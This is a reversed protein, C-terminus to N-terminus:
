FTGNPRVKSGLINMTHFENGGSAKGSIGLISVKLDLICRVWTKMKLYLNIITEDVMSRQKRYRVIIWLLLLYNQGRCYLRSSVLSTSPERGPMFIFIDADKVVDINCYWRWLLATWRNRYKRTNDVWFADVVLLWKNCFIFKITYRLFLRRNCKWRFILFPYVQQSRVSPM